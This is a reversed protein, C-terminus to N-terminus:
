SYAHKAEYDSRWCQRPSRYFLSGVTHETLFTFLPLQQSQAHRIVDFTVHLVLDDRRYRKLTEFSYVHHNNMLKIPSFGDRFCKSFVIHFTAKNYNM